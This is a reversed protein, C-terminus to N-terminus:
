EEARKVADAVTEALSEHLVGAMEALAEHPEGDNTMHRAAAEGLRRTVTAAGSKGGARGIEGYEAYRESVLRKREAASEAGRGASPWAEFVAVHMADIAQETGGGFGRGAVLGRVCAYLAFCEWERRARARAAPDGAPVLGAEELDEFLRPALRAYLGAADRGAEGPASV